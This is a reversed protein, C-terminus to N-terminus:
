EKRKWLIHLISCISIAFPERRHMATKRREARVVFRHPYSEMDWNPAERRMLSHGVTPGLVPIHGHVDVATVIDAICGNFLVDCRTVEV